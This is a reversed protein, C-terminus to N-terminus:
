MVDMMDNLKSQIQTLRAKAIEMLDQDIYTEDSSFSRAYFSYLEDFRERHIFYDKSDAGRVEEFFEDLWQVFTILLSNKIDIAKDQYSTFSDSEQYQEPEPVPETGIAGEEIKTEGTDKESFQRSAKSIASPHEHARESYYSRNEKKSGSYLFVLAVILMLALAGGGYLIYDNKINFVGDSSSPTTPVPTQFDLFQQAIAINQDCLLVRDSDSYTEYIAKADQYRLISNEYDKSNLSATAEEYYQNAVIYDDCKSILSDIQDVLEDEELDIYDVRIDTLIQQATVYDGANMLLVADDYSSELYPYLDCKEIQSSCYATMESDKVNQYNSLASLYDEKALAYKEDEYYTDASLVLASAEIYFDCKLIYQACTISNFIDGLEDYYEKSKEYYYKAKSYDHLNFYQNANNFFTNASAMLTDDYNLAEDIKTTYYSFTKLGELIAYPSDSLYRDLEDYIVVTPLTTIDYIDALAAEGNDMNVSIIDIANGYYDDIDDIIDDATDCDVCASDWFYVLVVVDNKLANEVLNSSDTASVLHTTFIMLTTISLVLIMRNIRM